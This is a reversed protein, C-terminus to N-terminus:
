HYSDIVFRYHGGNSHLLDLNEEDDNYAICCMTLYYKPYIPFIINLKLTNLYCIGTNSLHGITMDSPSFFLNYIFSLSIPSPTEKQWRCMGSNDEDTWSGGMGM